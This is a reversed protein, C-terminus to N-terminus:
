RTLSKVDKKAAKEEKAEEEATPQPRIPPLTDQQRKRLGFTKPPNM